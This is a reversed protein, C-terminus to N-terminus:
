FNQKTIVSATELGIGVSFTFRSKILPTEILTTLLIPTIGGVIAKIESDDLRDLFSECDQFLAKGAPINYIKIESM